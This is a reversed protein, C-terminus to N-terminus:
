SFQICYYCQVHMSTYQYTIHPYSVHQEDTNTCSCLQVEATDLRTVGANVDTGALVLAAGVPTTSFYNDCTHISRVEILLLKKKNCCVYYSVYHMCEYNLVPTQKRM